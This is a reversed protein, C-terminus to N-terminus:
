TIKSLLSEFYVKLACKKRHSLPFFHEIGAEAPTILM